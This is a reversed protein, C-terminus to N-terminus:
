VNWFDSVKIIYYKLYKICKSVYPMVTCYTAVPTYNRLYVIINLLQDCLLLALINMSMTGDWFNLILSVLTHMINKIQLLILLKYENFIYKM